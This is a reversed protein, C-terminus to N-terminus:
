VFDKDNCSVIANLAQLVEALFSMVDLELNPSANAQFTTIKYIKVIPKGYQLKGKTTIQKMNMENYM